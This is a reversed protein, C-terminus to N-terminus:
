GAGRVYGTLVGAVLVLMILLATFASAARPFPDSRNGLRARKNKIMRRVAFVLAIGVGALVIPVWYMGFRLPGVLGTWASGAWSALFLYAPVLLIKGWNKHRFLGLIIASCVVFIGLTVYLDWFFM